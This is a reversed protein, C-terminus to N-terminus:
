YEERYESVSLVRDRDDHKYVMKNAQKWAEAENRASVVEAYDKSNASQYKILYSKM